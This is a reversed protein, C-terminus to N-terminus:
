MNRRYQGGAEFLAETIEGLSCCQVAEMLVAFVNGGGTATKKLRALAKPAAKAHRKKFAGLRKIQSDKETKTSRQLNPTEPAGAANEDLFTNVGVIPLSGNHKRTEYLMSEEQIKGRQYGTEM